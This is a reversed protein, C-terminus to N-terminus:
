EEEDRPFEEDTIGTMIFERESSTLKPFCDQVVISGANYADLMAQTIDFYKTREIGTLISKRTIALNQKM